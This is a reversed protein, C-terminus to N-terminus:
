QKQRGTLGQILMKLWPMRLIVVQLISLLDFVALGLKKRKIQCKLSLTKTKVMGEDQSLLTEDIITLQYPDNVKVELILKKRGFETSMFNRIVSLNITAIAIVRLLQIKIRLDTACATADIYPQAKSTEAPPPLPFKYRFQYGLTNSNAWTIQINITLRM